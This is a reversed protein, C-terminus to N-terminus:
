PGNSGFGNKMSKKNKSGGHVLLFILPNQLLRPKWCHTTQTTKWNNKLQKEITKWNNKLQKETTKWNTKLQNKTPKQKSLLGRFVFFRVFLLFCLFSLLLLLLVVCCCCVVFLLFVFLCVFCFVVADFLFGVLFWNFFLQFVVSFCSSVLQFVVSFCCFLLLCVVCFCSM